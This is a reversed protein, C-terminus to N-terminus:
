ETIFSSLLFASEKKSLSRAIARYKALASRAETSGKPLSRYLSLADQLDQPSSSVPPKAPAPTSTNKLHRAYHIDKDPTWKQFDPIKAASEASRLKKWGADQAASSQLYRRNADAEREKAEQAEAPTQADLMSSFSKSAEGQARLSQTQNSLWEQWGKALDPNIERATDILAQDLRSNDHDIDVFTQKFANKNVGYHALAKNMSTIQHPDAWGPFGEGRRWTWHAKRLLAYRSEAPLSHFSALRDTAELLSRLVIISRM